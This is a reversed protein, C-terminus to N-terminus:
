ICMLLLYCGPRAFFGLVMNWFMASKVSQFGLQWSLKTLQRLVQRQLTFTNNEVILIKIFLKIDDGIDAPLTLSTLTM